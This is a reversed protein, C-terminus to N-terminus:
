STKHGEVDKLRKKRGGNSGDKEVTKRRQKGRRNVNGYVTELQKWVETCGEMNMRATEM